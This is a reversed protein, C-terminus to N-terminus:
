LPDKKIKAFRRPYREQTPRVKEVRIVKHTVDTGPIQYTYATQLRGGLVSIARGARDVESASDPGKMALFVGGVRLFPLCLEALVRLDAVARSTVIDYRERYASQLALEEARDHICTVDGAGLVPAIQALWQVRKDLSDLLTLRIDPQCLKLVLGPFGAGTGVDLVSKHAFDAAHLLAACDLMHLRAVAVPDTIATLNMVQNQELLLRGYRALAAGPAPSLDMERLGAEILEQM